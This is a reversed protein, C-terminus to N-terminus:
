QEATAAERVASMFAAIKSHDKRAPVTEVGSSVDVVAPSLMRIAGAVNESTLGGALIMTPWDDFLGRARARAIMEWNAQTGTGGLQGPVAADCLLYDPPADACAALFGAIDALSENGAIAWAVITEFGGDGLAHIADATVEGYLQLRRVGCDRLMAPLSAPLRGERLGVLIVIMSPDDLKSLIARAKPTDLQRPGGVLNLGIWDAGARLAFRGDEVSTIGCIKVRTHM